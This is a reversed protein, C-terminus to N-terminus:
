KPLTIDLALGGLDSKRAHIQGGHKNVIEKVISLGLGTKSSENRTLPNFRRFIKFEDTYLEEKLGPGGDEVSLIIEKPYNYLEVRVPADAPTHIRINSLLNTILQTILELDGDISINEPIKLEMPHNPSTIEFDELCQKLLHSFDILKKEKATLEGDGARALLLLDRILGEMREIEGNIRTFYKEGNKLADMGNKQLLEVYGRIVTIPTRLEHSADGVFEEMREQNKKLEINVKDLANDNYFYIFTFIAVLLDLILVFIILNITDKKLTNNFNKDSLGLVLIENPSIQYSLILGNQYNQITFISSLILSIPPTTSYVGHYSTLLKAPTGISVEEIQIAYQSEDTLQDSILKANNNSNSIVEIDRHLSNKLASIGNKRSQTFAFIGVATTSITVVLILIASIRTSLKM